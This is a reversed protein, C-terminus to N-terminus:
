RAAEAKGLEWTIQDLLLRAGHLIGQDRTDWPDVTGGSECRHVAEELLQRALPLDEREGLSVITGAGLVLAAGTEKPGPELLRRCSERLRDKLTAALAPDARQLADLLAGFAPWQDPTEGAVDSPLTGLARALATRVDAGMPGFLSELFRALAAPRRSTPAIAFLRGLLAQEEREYERPHKDLSPEYSRPDHTSWVFDHSRDVMRDYLDEREGDPVSAFSEALERLPM